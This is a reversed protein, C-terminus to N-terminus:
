KFFVFMSSNILFEGTEKVTFGKVEEVEPFVFDGTTTVPVSSPYVAFYKRDIKDPTPTVTLNSSEAISDEELVTLYYYENDSAEEIKPILYNLSNNKEQESFGLRTLFDSDTLYEIVEDKSAFNRGNRTLAIKNLALEYFVHDVETGDLSLVSDKVTLDWGNDQNFAPLPAFSDLQSDVTVDIEGEPANYFYIFPSPKEWFVQISYTTVTNPANYGVLTFADSQTASFNNKTCTYGNWPSSGTSCLSYASTSYKTCTYGSQVYPCTATVYAPAPVYDVMAGEYGSGWYGPPASCWANDWAPVVNLCVAEATPAPILNLFFFALVLFKFIKM